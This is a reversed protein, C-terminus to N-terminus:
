NIVIRMFSILEIQRFGDRDIFEVVANEDTMVKFIDSMEVHLIRKEM